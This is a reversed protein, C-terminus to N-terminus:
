RYTNPGTADETRRFIGKLLDVKKTDKLMEKEEHVTIWYKIKIKKWGKLMRGYNMEKTQFNNSM